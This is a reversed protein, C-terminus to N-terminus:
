RTGGEHHRSSGRAATSLPKKSRVSIGPGSPWPAHSKGGGDPAPNPHPAYGGRHSLMPPGLGNGLPAPQASLQSSVGAGDDHADLADLRAAAIAHLQEGRKARAWRAQRFRTKVKAQKAADRARLWRGLACASRADDDTMQTRTGDHWKVVYGELLGGPAVEVVSGEKM